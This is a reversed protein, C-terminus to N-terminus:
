NELSIVLTRNGRGAGIKTLLATTIYHYGIVNGINFRSNSERKSCWNKGTEYLPIVRTRYVLSVPEIGTVPEM